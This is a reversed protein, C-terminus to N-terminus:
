GNKNGNSQFWINCGLNFTKHSEIEGKIVEGTYSHTFIITDKFKFMFPTRELAIKYDAKLVEIEADVGRVMDRLGCRAEFVVEVLEEGTETDVAISGDDNYKSRIIQVTHPFRPNYEPYAM